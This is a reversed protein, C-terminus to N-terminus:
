PLIHRRPSRKNRVNLNLRPSRGSEVTSWMLIPAEGHPQVIYCEGVRMEREERSGCVCMICVMCEIVAGVAIVRPAPRWGEDMRIRM